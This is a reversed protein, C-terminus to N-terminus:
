LLTQPQKQKTFNRSLLPAFPTNFSRANQPCVKVCACCRICKEINTYQEEGKSIAGTPCKKVCVACHICLEENTVPTKPVPIESKRMKIVGRLFKLLRFLSQKPRRISRVDIPYVQELSDAKQIKNAIKKGFDNAFILDNEDPRGSAIPYEITNFSHEGVFTAAGIVKFGQRIAFADLEMLSREYARNGYVVVLIAPTDNGKIVKMRQLALPAVHGGYVPVAIIAIETEPINREEISNLTVDIIENNEIGIGHVIANGVQKSTHTPSFCIFNTKKLEM